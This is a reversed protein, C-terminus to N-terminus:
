HYRIKAPVGSDPKTFLQETRNSQKSEGAVAVAKIPTSILLTPVLHKVTNLEIDKDLNQDELKIVKSIVHQNLNTLKTIEQRHVADRLQLKIIIQRM